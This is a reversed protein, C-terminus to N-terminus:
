TEPPQSQALCTETREVRYSYLDATAYRHKTKDTYMVDTLLYVRQKTQSDQYYSYYLGDGDLDTICLVSDNIYVIRVPNIAMSVKGSKTTQKVSSFTHRKGHIETYLTGTYIPCCGESTEEMGQFVLQEVYCQMIPIHGSQEEFEDTISDIVIVRDKFRIQNLDGITCDGQALVLKPAM